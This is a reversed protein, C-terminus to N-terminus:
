LLTSLSRVNIPLQELRMRELTAGLTPNDTQVLSTVDKIAVEVATQGVKMTLDVVASQQVQVTLTGEFKQMGPAEALITYPGPIVGPFFYFGSDNTTSKSIGNTGTNTLTVSAGQIVAGSQDRLTGSVSGTSAQPWMPMTVLAISVVCFALKQSLSFGPSLFLM